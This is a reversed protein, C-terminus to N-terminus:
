SHLNTKLFFFDKSNAADMKGPFDSTINLEYSRKIFKLPKLMRSWSCKLFYLHGTRDGSTEPFRQKQLAGSSELTCGFKLAPPGM